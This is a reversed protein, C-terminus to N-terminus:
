GAGTCTGAPPDARARRAAQRNQNAILTTAM